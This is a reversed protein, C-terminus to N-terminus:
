GTFVGSPGTDHPHKLGLAHGAEHLLTLFNQTGRAWGEPFLFASNMWTDGAGAFDQPWHSEGWSTASLGPAATNAFRLVGADVTNAAVETFTLNAVSAFAQLV